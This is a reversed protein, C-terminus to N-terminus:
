NKQKHSQHPSQPHNNINYILSIKEYNVLKNYPKKFNLKYIIHINIVINM